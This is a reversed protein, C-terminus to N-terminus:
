LLFYFKETANGCGGESSIKQSLKKALGEFWWRDKLAV